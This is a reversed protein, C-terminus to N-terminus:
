PASGTVVTPTQGTAKVVGCAIRAGANGAPQSTFDDEGGHIVLAHGVIDSGTGSAASWDKTSFRLTGHGDDGVIVNGIDGLHAAGHDLHGHPQDQPNWHPGASSGDDSSCDGNQHLHVAHIGPPANTLDLEMTVEDGHKLFVAQGGVTSGSKPELIAQAELREVNPKSDTHACASLAVVATLITLRM